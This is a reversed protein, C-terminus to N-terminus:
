NLSVLDSYIECDNDDILTIKIIPANNFVSPIEDVYEVQPPVPGPNIIGLLTQYNSYIDSIYVRVPYTVGSIGEIVVQSLIFM